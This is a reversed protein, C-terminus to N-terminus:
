TDKVKVFLANRKRIAEREKNGKSINMKMQPSVCLPEIANQKTHRDDESLDKLIEYINETRKLSIEAIQQAYEVQAQMASIKIEM